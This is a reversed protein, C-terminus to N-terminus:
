EETLWDPQWPTVFANGCTYIKDFELHALRFYGIAMDNRGSRIDGIKKGTEDSIETGRAPLDGDLRVPLLRKKLSARHKMRATVEQGVYCGKEFDVGNLKEM